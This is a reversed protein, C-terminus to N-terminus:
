GTKPKREKIYQIWGNSHEAWPKEDTFFNPVRQEIGAVIGPDLEGSDIIKRAAWRWMAFGPMDGVLMWAPFPTLFTWVHDATVSLLDPNAVDNVDAFYTSSTNFYLQPGTSAKPWTHPSLYNEREGYSTETLSLQDGTIRWPLIYPTGNARISSVTGELPGSKYHLPRNEEGTFPNQYTELIEDTEPDCFLGLDYNRRFFTHDGTKGWKSKAIGKLRLIRAQVQNPVVSFIEGYYQLYTTRDDLSGVVKAFLDVNDEPKSLDYPWNSTQANASLRTAASSAAVAAGALLNRRTLM